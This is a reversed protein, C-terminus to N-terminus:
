ENVSIVARITGFSVEDGPRLERQRVGRGNVRTGNTSGLDVVRLHQGEREFRAHHRSVDTVDIVLDNAVDRGLTTVPRELASEFGRLPGNLFRLRPAAAPRPLSEPRAVHMTAPAPESITAEVAISRRAAAPAALLSVQIADVTQYRRQRAQGQLWTALQDELAHQYSAFPALDAPHLRVDYRNPVLQRGAVRVQGATMARDLRQGIDAPQVPSRFLRGIGGEM